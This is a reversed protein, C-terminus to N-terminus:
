FLEICYFFKQLAGNRIGFETVSSYYYFGCPIPMFGVPSDMYLVHLFICASGCRDGQGISSDLCILSRLMPGTVRFRISSFTPFLRPVLSLKKVLVCITCASLDVIWLPIEPFQFDERFWLSSDFSLVTAYLIPSSRWYGVNWLVSIWFMLFIWSM